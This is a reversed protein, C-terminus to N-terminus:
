MSKRLPGCPSKGRIAVVQGVNKYSTGTESRSLAVQGKLMSPNRWLPALQSRGLPLRVPRICM